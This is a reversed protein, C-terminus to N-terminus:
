PSILDPVYVFPKFIANNNVRPSCMDILDLKVHEELAEWDNSILTKSSNSDDHTKNLTHNKVVIMLKEEKPSQEIESDGSIIEELERVQEM